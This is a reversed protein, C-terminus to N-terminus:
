IGGPRAPAAGARPAPLTDGLAAAVAAAFADLTPAEMWREAERPDLANHTEILISPMAARRLVFIRQEPAHRDVFLGAEEDPAYLGTYGTGGYPLFGAESMRRAVARGLALRRAVPAPGGEDSFLVAFGPADTAVPCDLGPAPSWREAKGRVDSHLSVFADAEWAAAEELRAAYEVLRGGERTLRVVVHGTAELRDALAVAVQLMTDQEEACFSGTNGHNDPAGHGPDIMVRVLGSGAPFRLAPAVLPAEEGPWRRTDFAAVTSRPTPPTARRARAGLVSWALTAALAASLLLVWGPQSRM